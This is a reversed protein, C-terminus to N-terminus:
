VNEIASLTEKAAKEWSFEKSKELGKRTLTERLESNTLIEKFSHFIEDPKDPDILIGADGVVEPLSSNNSSVVPVGCRMAELPPFGFGEFFSPYVFLSSLNYIYEKEEDGIFGLLYVNERFKTKGLEWFIKEGMWGKEGAIVLKHRQLNENGTQRAFRQLQDYARLVAIINKRPEITGLFLIFKYPLGYKEKIEVLRSDNRDVPRFKESIGSTVVKVKEPDIGYLSVLDSKTSSSVAIIKKSERCIKRPNIFMHWLRRKPSFHEPYMEFSLDHVTLVLKTNKSVSGFFINPAFFVDVENLMKDIKPFNLYWFSLNLLKNPFNFKKLTVNSYKGLWSFDAKSKKWSNFFLVYENRRDIEFLRSLLNLTYEEVGTRRGESLCRVDIGIKM